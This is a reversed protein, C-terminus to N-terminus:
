EGSNLKYSNNLPNNTKKYNIKDVNIEDWNKNNISSELRRLDDEFKGHDNKKWRWLKIYWIKNIKINQEQYEKM